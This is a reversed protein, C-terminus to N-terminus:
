EVELALEAWCNAVRTVVLLGMVPFTMPAFVIRYADLSESESAADTAELRELVSVAGRDIFRATRARLM